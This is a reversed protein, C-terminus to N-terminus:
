RASRLAMAGTITWTLLVKHGQESIAVNCSLKYNKSSTENHSTAALAPASAALVLAARCCNSCYINENKSGEHLQKGAAPLDWGCAVQTL